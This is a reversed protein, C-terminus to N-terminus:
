QVGDRSACRNEVHNLVWGAPLDGPFERAGDNIRLIEPPSVSTGGGGGGGKEEM